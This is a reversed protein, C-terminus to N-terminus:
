WGMARPASARTSSHAAEPQFAPVIGQLAQVIRSGDNLAVASQLAKIQDLLTDLAVPEAPAVYFQGSRRAGVTEARSLLDESLKEGPRRGTVRIPVDQNPVLGSLRILNHALDMIRVPYGMDLVFVDGRGGMAGAQLILQAAEPITMFYRVMDPDTVTVPQGNQIQRTMIPIVSGRSGLVNGFRVSVMNANAAVAYGRVIMEAVHKTSGMVSRPEVAKDTSVLVFRGVLHEISLEVVNLTGIVNNRVAEAPYREMLPVHKHAAAHFVVDPHYLEFVHGLGRRDQIDCIVPVVECDGEVECLEQMAEHVSNEGRGLVLARSAGVNLVQRCLERGISGGGGTVLVTRGRLYGSVAERDLKVESRPLLDGMRVERLASVAVGREMLERLPPLIRVPVGTKECVVLVERMREPSLSPIAVVIQQARLRAAVEPIEDVTGRVPLGLIRQHQKAPDDDVFGVVRYDTASEQIQWVLSRAADGTGVILTRRGAGNRRHSSAITRASVRAGGLLILHLAAETPLVLYPRGPAGLAFLQPLVYFLIAILPPGAAASATLWLVDQRSVKRWPMRYIRLGLYVPLRACLVTALFPLPSAPEQLQGFSSFWAWAGAALMLVSDILLKGLERAWTAEACRPIERAARAARVLLDGGWLERALRSGTFLRVSM